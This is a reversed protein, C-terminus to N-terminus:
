CSVGAEPTNTITTPATRARNRLALIAFLRPSLAGDFLPVLSLREDETASTECLFLLRDVLLLGEMLHSMWMRLTTFGVFSAYLKRFYLAECEKALATYRSEHGDRGFLYDRVGEDSANGLAAAVRPLYGEVCMAEDRVRHCFQMFTLTHKDRALARLFSRDLVPRHRCFDCASVANNEGCRERLDEWLLAFMSRYFLLRSSGYHEESSSSAFADLPQTALMLSLSNTAFERDDRVLSSMPFGEATLAHWCCSVLVMAPAGTERYLRCIASGLDGCTHLGMLVVSSLSPVTIPHVIPAMPELAVVSRVGDTVQLGRMGSKGSAVGSKRELVAAGEHTFVKYRSSSDDYGVVTVRRTVEETAAAAAEGSDAGDDAVTANKPDKGKQGKQTGVSPVCETVIVDTARPLECVPAASSEGDDRGRKGAASPDVFPVFLEAGVKAALQDPTFNVAWEGLQAFKLEAEPISINSTQEAMKTEKEKERMKLKHAVRDAHQRAHKVLPAGNQCRIIKGCATCTAKSQLTSAAAAASAAQQIGGAPASASLFDNDDGAAAAAGDGTAIEVGDEGCIPVCGKLVEVWDTEPGVRCTVCTTRGRACYNLNLIQKRQHQTASAVELLPELRDLAVEKHLPNCDVGVVPTGECISLVRSVYGKGEGINMVTLSETGAATAAERLVARITDDMIAVEHKKKTCMGRGLLAARVHTREDGSLAFANPPKDDYTSSNDNATTNSSSAAATREPFLTDAPRPYDTHRRRLKLRETADFFNKLPGAHRPGSQILRPLEEYTLPETNEDEGDDGGIKSYRSLRNGRATFEKGFGECLVNVEAIAEAVVHPRASLDAEMEDPLRTLRKQVAMEFFRDPHSTHIIFYKKLLALADRTYRRLDDLSNPDYGPPLPAHCAAPPM